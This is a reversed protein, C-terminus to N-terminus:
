YVTYLVESYKFAQLEAQQFNGDSMCQNCDSVALFFGQWGLHIVTLRMLGCTPVETILLKALAANTDEETTAMAVVAMAVVAMGLAGSVGGGEVESVEEGTVATVAALAETVVTVSSSRRWSQSSQPWLCSGDGVM